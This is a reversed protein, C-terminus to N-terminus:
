KKTPNPKGFAKKVLKIPKGIMTKSQVYNSAVKKATGKVPLVEDLGKGHDLHKAIIKPPSIMRGFGGIIVLLKVLFGTFQVPTSVGFMFWGLVLLFLSYYVQVLSLHKVNKWWETYYHRYSDFIWATLALPSTIGLVMLDFFRRGNKWLVPIITSILVIDFIALTAVEFVGVNMPVAVNKMTSAGMSSIIDSVKNLGQFAKQFAFPVATSAGAVLFWRKMITQIDMPQSQKFGKKNFMPIMRKMGELITLVSVLGISLLSFMYTTNQFWENDFIWLPTKLILDSCLEYLWAM